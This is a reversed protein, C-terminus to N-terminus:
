ATRLVAQSTSPSTDTQVKSLLLGGTVAVCIGIDEPRATRTASADQAALWSALLYGALPTALQSAPRLM